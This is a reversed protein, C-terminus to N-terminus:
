VVEESRVVRYKPLSPDTLLHVHVHKYKSSNLLTRLKVAQLPEAGGCVVAVATLAQLTRGASSPPLSFGFSVLLFCIVPGHIAFPLSQGTTFVALDAEELPQWNSPWRTLVAEVQHLVAFAEYDNCNLEIGGETRTTGGTLRWQCTGEM